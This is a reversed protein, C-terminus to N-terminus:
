GKESWATPSIFREGAVKKTAASLDKALGRDRRISESMSVPIQRVDATLLSSVVLLSPRRPADRWLRSPSDFALCIKKNKREYGKSFDRNPWIFGLLDLCSQKNKSANAQLYSARRNCGAGPPTQAVGPDRGVPHAL